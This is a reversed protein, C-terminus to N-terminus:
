YPFLSDLPKEELEGLEKLSELGVRERHGLIWTTLPRDKFRAAYAELEPLSYKLAREFRKPRPDGGVVGQDEWSMIAGPVRRFPVRTSRYSEEIGRRTEAFRKESSPLNRLLEALLKTAEPTKDAQCGLEGWLQTDDGKHAGKTHGGNASYALARSERVEQFIVASMDGGMYEAFFQHEVAQEPDFPDDAAFVGVKAQVMDRHTFLVRPSSPRLLRLPVRPPAQRVRRGSQLLKAIESPSRNGVYAARYPYQMFERMRSKLRSEQLGKLEANTLRRLVSSDRGRTAAEELAGFVADPDKKEDERAGLAIEIMRGLAGEPVNPWDFRANMLELTAWLNRDLGTISVATEQEGCHYAISSGLAYLKKKFEEASWPGAGSLGLLELAACLERDHRSGREFRFHLEFLDNYPNRTSYLRGGEVPLIQYDKSPALWVPEIAPAPMAVLEKLFESARSPDIPLKTFEPKTMKPIEPKGDRRYVVIRGEGLYLNAVRMVDAKTVRRLRDLREVTKDWPEISTFNAVMMGARGANTELRAKESTEFDTIVAAVDEDTFDGAKLAAVIELLLAEAQEPTQDKKVVAWMHWSGFDNELQPYSGSARVKQAQNLRLNLIGAQSNDVIMDMVSLADADAHSAPVGRWALEVKQEAEYRVESKEVSAPKPDVWEPLEPLKRPKWAGFRKKILALAQEREFDGALIIAMNNPVYWREYFAYMKALSPNKLHEITGLTPQQGYPHVKYLKRLVEEGIVREADDMSRNKEEYVTEIESQFLRFIPTAFRDAELVAWQELRNSPVDVTYVTEEDSTWANLGRAGLAKYARDFENAVAFKAAAVNEMDILKYVSAREAPDHLTFLKEYLARIRQLHAREREFNLTGLRSSGKFLMHELYHAMGTSDAPDHKSGARVAIRAAVRPEAKNPSLYVTLGNPLRHITTQSGDQPLPKELTAPLSPALSSIKAAPAPLALSLPLLVAILRTM